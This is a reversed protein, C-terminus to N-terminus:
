SIVTQTQIGSTGENEKRIYGIAKSIDDIVMVAKEKDEDTLDALDQVMIFRINGNIAAQAGYHGDEFVLANEVPTKFHAIAKLFVEPDPKKRTVMEGSVVHDFYGRIGAHGLCSDVVHLSSSTAVAMRIGEERCFDLMERVGPRLPITVNEVIYNVKGWYLDWYERVPYDRGYAELVREQYNEWSGGMLSALFEVPLPRGLEASAELGCRVYMQRESDLLLGDM